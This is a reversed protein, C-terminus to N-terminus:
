QGLIQSRIMEFQADSLVGQEHLQTMQELHAHKFADAHERAEAAAGMVGAVDVGLSTPDDLGFIEGGVVTATSVGYKASVEALHAQDDVEIRETDAPDYIVPVTDGAAPIGGFRFTLRATVEVPAGDQGTFRVTTKKRATDDIPDHTEPGSERGSGTTSGFRAIKVVVARTRVGNAELDQVLKKSPKWIGM